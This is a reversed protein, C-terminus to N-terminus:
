GERATTAFEMATLKMKYGKGTEHAFATLTGCLFDSSGLRYAGSYHGATM